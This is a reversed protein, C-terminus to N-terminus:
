KLKSVSIKSSSIDFVSSLFRTISEKVAPNDAGSCVVSAGMVQPYFQKVLVPTESGNDKYLVYEYSNSFSGDNQSEQSNRAYVSEKSNKLTIMVSCEGAGEINEIHKECKEELSEVYEEYSYEDTSKVTKESSFFPMDSLMILGIGILGAIILFKLKKDSNRIKEFLEKVNNAM